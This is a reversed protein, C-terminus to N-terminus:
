KFLNMRRINFIFFLERANSLTSSFLMKESSSVQHSSFGIECSSRACKCCKHYMELFYCACLTICVFKFHSCSFHACTPKLTHSGVEDCIWYLRNLCMTWFGTCKILPFQMLRPLSNSSILSINTADGPICRISCNLEYGPFYGLSYYNAVVDEVIGRVCAYTAVQIRDM